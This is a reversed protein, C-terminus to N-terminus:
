FGTEKGCLGELVGVDDSVIDLLGVFGWVVGLWCLSGACAVAVDGCSNEGGPGADEGAGFGGSIPGVCGTESDWCRSILERM